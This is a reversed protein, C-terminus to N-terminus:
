CWLKQQTRIITMDDRQVFNWYLGRQGSDSQFLFIWPLYRERRAESSFGLGLGLGIVKPRYVRRDICPPGSFVSSCISGAIHPDFLQYWHKPYSRRLFIIGLDCRNKTWYKTKYPVNQSVIDLGLINGKWSLSPTLSHWKQSAMTTLLLGLLKILAFEKCWFSGRLLACQCLFNSSHQSVQIIINLHIFLRGLYLFYYFDHM